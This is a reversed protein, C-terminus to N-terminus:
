SEELLLISALCATLCCALFGCGLTSWAMRTLEQRRGPALHSLTALQIGVSGLNSFGCLAYTAIALSRPSLSDQQALQLYAVFENALTKVAVLRGVVECDGALVCCGRVGM